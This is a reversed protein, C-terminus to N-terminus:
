ALPPTWALARIEGFERGLKTWSRGTDASRYVEGSVSAAYVTAADSPHRAFCWITSNSRGPMDATRWTRGGNTSLGVVGESGPPGDGNGLLVVGDSGYPVCMGRCYSWPLSGGISAPQWTVGGDSSCNLDNNTSALLLQGAATRTLVIDHIDQSSLGTGLRSWTRGWDESAHVGDIEVGALLVGPLETAAFCTLRTHLIRPCDALMDTRARGWSQGGDESRWIGAPRTGALILEPKVPHILLSWVRAGGVDCVQQWSDAGDRSVFVGNESGLFLTGDDHPHVALARVDCEVFMGDAARRFTGGGDVSRFVGEGVAGVYIRHDM